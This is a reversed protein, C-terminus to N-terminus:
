KKYDSVSTEPIFYLNRKTRTCAVYFKSKTSPALGSLKQKHFAEFTKKNLVVCVDLFEGGKSEGWNQSFCKYTSSNQYFLKLIKDNEAIEKIAVNDDFCEVISGAEESCSHISIGLRSSIFDCVTTPCRHSHSLTDTDIEFGAKSIEKIWRDINSHVGKGTNGRKSTSFTKQYFDGLLFVDAKLKSLSLMWKFDDSEFDQCEDIFVCDFFKDIRDLYSNDFEIKNRGITLVGKILSNSLQNDIIRGDKSVSSNDSPNTKQYDFIIGEPRKGLYPVLCFNYLFEFVGFIHTNEPVNGYKECLRDKLVEQNNITYTIILNRKEPQIKEIITRTKGSGAVAHILRKEGM